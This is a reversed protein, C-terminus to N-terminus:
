GPARAGPDPRRGHRSRRLPQDARPHRTAIADLVDRIHVGPVSRASGRLTATTPAARLRDGAPAAREKIRSAVLGVVGQHWSEDFLVGRQARAHGPRPDALVRVAALAEPQMKAEISRREHNLEDLRAALPRRGGRTM